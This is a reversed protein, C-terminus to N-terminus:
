LIRPEKVGAAVMERRSLSMLADAARLWRCRVRSSCLTASAPLAAVNCAILATRARLLMKQQSGVARAGSPAAASRPLLWPAASLKRRLMHMCYVYM